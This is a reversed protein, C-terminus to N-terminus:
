SVKKYLMNGVFKSVLVYGYKELLSKFKEPGPHQIEHEIITPRYRSEELMNNLIRYDFGEADIKLFDFDEPINLRSLEDGLEVVEIKISEVKTDKNYWTCNPELSSLTPAPHLLFDLTGSTNSVAKNLIIIDKRGRYHEKLENCSKPHPEFLVGGWGELVLLSAPSYFGAAGIDVLLKYKPKQINEKILELIKHEM